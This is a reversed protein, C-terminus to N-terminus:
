LLKGSKDVVLYTSILLTGYGFPSVEVWDLLSRLLVSVERSKELIGMAELWHLLHKSLFRELEDGFCEPAQRMYIVHTIWSASAYSITESIKTSIPETSLTLDCLNRRLVANLYRLCHMAFQRHHLQTDIYLADYERRLRTSLYDTFSPHIVRIPEGESWHLVCGLKLITHRSPRKLCLLTDIAEDSLPNRAVIITGMISLFDSQFDEDNGSDASGLATAYLVDLASQSNADVDGQLLLNLRKPPDHGGIFLCATSAWVFLGAAREALAHIKDSGPWDPALRLGPNRSNINSMRDRLFILIDETNHQTTLDLEQVLIHSKGTFAALIDPEKRSTIIIRVVPPLEASKNVLAELLQERSNANGCEDLADIVIVLPMETKPLSLLPNLVLDTFQRIPTLSTINSIANVTHAIVTGIGSDAKGLQHSITRIVNSPQNREEVDRDFFVFAGLCKEDDFFNAVTTSITSKGSGVLGHLWLIRQDLSPRSAWDTISQLLEMRTGQLCPSRDSADMRAPELKRLM